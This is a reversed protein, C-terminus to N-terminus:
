HTAKEGPVDKIAGEAPCNTSHSEGEGELKALDDLKEDRTKQPGCPMASPEKNKMRKDKSEEYKSASTGASTRMEQPTTAAYSIMSFLLMPMLTKM